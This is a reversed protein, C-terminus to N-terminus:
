SLAEPVKCRPRIGSSPVANTGFSGAFSRIIEISGRWGSADVRKVVKGGTDVRMDVAGGGGYGM